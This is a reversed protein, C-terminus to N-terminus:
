KIIYKIFDIDIIKLRSYSLDLTHFTLYKLFDLTELRTYSMDINDIHLFTLTTHTFDISFDNLATHSLDLRQLHTYNSMLRLIIQNLYINESFDILLLHDYINLHIHDVDYNSKAQISELNTSFLLDQTTIPDVLNQENLILNKLCKIHPNFLKISHINSRTLDITLQNNSCNFFFKEYEWSPIYRCSQCIFTQLNPLLTLSFLQKIPTSSLDLTILSQFQDLKNSITELPNQSLILIEITNLGNGILNDISKLQNSSLNLSKLKLYYKHDFVLKQKNTLQNYSLDLELLQPFYSNNLQSWQLGEQDHIRLTLLLRFFLGGEFIINSEIASSSFTNNILTLNEINTGVNVLLDRLSLQFYSDHIKVHHNQLNYTLDTFLPIPHIFTSNWCFFLGTRDYTCRQPIENWFSSQIKKIFILVFFVLLKTNAYM